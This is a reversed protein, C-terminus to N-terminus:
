VTNGTVTRYAAITQRAISSWNLDDLPARRERNQHLAWAIAEQLVKPTLEGEYTRLWNSGVSSQLEAMAGLRPVLVPRDFSLGLLASGSNLINKFPLVVLNAANLFLQLEDDEIRNLFFRVSGSGEAVSRVVQEYEPEQPKGAVFLITDPRELERVARILRPVNKYPRILGVYTVVFASEPINLKARAEGCNMSNPYADRYHGHPIVFSPVESLFPWNKRALQLSSKSHAIIGDLRKAVGKLFRDEMFSYHQEHAKLNHITWIIKVCRKRARDFLSLSKRSSQIMSILSNKKLLVEPWHLHFIDCGSHKLEKRSFEIVDIGNKNIESYLMATYPNSPANKFAPFAVVTLKKNSIDSLNGNTM